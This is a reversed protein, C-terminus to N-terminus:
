GIKKNNNLRKAEDPLHITIQPYIPNQKEAKHKKVPFLQCRNKLIHPCNNTRHSLPSSHPFLITRIFFRIKKAYKKPTLASIIITLINALM